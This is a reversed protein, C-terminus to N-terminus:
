AARVDEWGCMRVRLARKGLVSARRLLVPVGLPRLALGCSGCERLMFPGRVMRSTVHVMSAPSMLHRAAPVALGVVGKPLQKARAM